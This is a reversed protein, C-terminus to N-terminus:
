RITIHRTNRSNCSTKDGTFLADLRSYGRVKVLPKLTAIGKSNTLASGVYKGKIYFRITKKALAKNNSDKLSATYIGRKYYRASFKTITVKSTKQIHNVTVGSYKGTASNEGWWNYNATAIGGNAFLAFGNYDSNKTITSNTIDLKALYQYIAGGATGANNETFTSKSITTTGSYYQCIAGGWIEANNNKFVSNTIKLSGGRKYITGFVANNNEFVSNVINLSGSNQYIASGYEANNKSFTCDVINITGDQYIIGGKSKEGPNANIFKIGYINVTIGSSTTFINNLQEANIITEGRRNDKYYYKAGYINVSKTIKLNGNNSGRYTGSNIIITNKSAKNSSEVAKGLSQYPSTSTGKNVDNGTKGNVYYTGADVNSIALSLITFLILLFGAFVFVKKSFDNNKNLIM